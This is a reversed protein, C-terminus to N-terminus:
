PKANLFKRGWVAAPNPEGSHLISCGDGIIFFSIMRTGAKATQANRTVEQEDGLVVVVEVVVRSSATTVLGAGDAVLVVVVRELM